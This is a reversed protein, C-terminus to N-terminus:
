PRRHLPATSPSLGGDTQAQRTSRPSPAASGCAMAMGVAMTIFSILTMHKM